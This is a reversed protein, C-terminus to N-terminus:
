PRRLHFLLSGRLDKWDFVSDKVTFFEKLSCAFHRIPSLSPYDLVTLQNKLVFVLHKLIARKNVIRTYKKRSCDKQMPGTLGYAELMLGPEDFGMRAVKETTGGLRANIELYYFRSKQKSYLFEFHFCGALNALGAFDMCNKKLRIDLDTTEISLTIGEFKRPVLFAKMDLMEGTESRVGHVILNPLNLFPQAIIPANVTKRKRLFLYLESPSSLMEVKFGPSVTGDESPRICIPFSQHPIKLYDEPVSLYWTPLVNLGANKALAIQRKKSAILELTSLAPSLIKCKEEFRSRNKVLWLLEADGVTAIAEAGILNAYELIKKIGTSTGVFNPNLHSCGFISSPYHKHRSEQNSIELLYVHIGQAFCSRSFALSIPAFGGLFLITRIKRLIPYQKRFAEKHDPM